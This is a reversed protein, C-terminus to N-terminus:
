PNLLGLSAEVSKVSIWGASYRASATTTRSSRSMGTRTIMTSTWSAASGLFSGRIM